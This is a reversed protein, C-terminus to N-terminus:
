VTGWEDDTVEDDSYTVTRGTANNKLSYVMSDKRMAPSPGRDPKAFQNGAKTKPITSRGRPKDTVIEVSDDSAVTLTNRVQPHASGKSDYGTFSVPDEGRNQSAFNQWNSTVKEKEKGKGKEKGTDKSAFGMDSYSGLLDSRSITSTHKSALQSHASNHAALNIEKLASSVSGVGDDGQYSSNTYPNTTARSYGDEDSMEDESDRKTFDEHPLKESNQEHVCLICRQGSTCTRCTIIEATPSRAKEGYPGAIRQRLDTLQKNSYLGLAKLKHCGKCRTKDPLQTNKLRAAKEATWGGGAFINAPKSM